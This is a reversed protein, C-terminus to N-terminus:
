ILRMRNKDKANKLSSCGKCLLESKKLHEYSRNRNRLVQCVIEYEELEM